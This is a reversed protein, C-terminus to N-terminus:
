KKETRDLLLKIDGKIDAIDKRAEENFKKLESIEEKKDEKVIKIEKANAEIDKTFSAYGFTVVVIATLITLINGIM